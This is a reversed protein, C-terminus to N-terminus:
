YAVPVEGRSLKLLEQLLWTVEKTDNLYYQANSPQQGVIVTLGTDKFQAFATEDTKDDGVFIPFLEHGEQDAYKKLLWLMSQRKNGAAYPLVELVKKGLCIEIQDDMLYPRCVEFFIEKVQAVDKQDVLRYHMSLTLKKDEILVGEIHSLQNMLAFSIKGIAEQAGQPIFNEFNINEWEMELGHNGVYVIKKIDIMAKLDELSRGSIITLKCNKSYALKRLLTKNRHELAADKPMPAIPALTGDFDLFLALHKNDLTSQYSSWVATLHRM